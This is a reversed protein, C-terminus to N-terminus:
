PYEVRPQDPGTVKRWFKMLGGLIFFVVMLSLFLIAVQPLGISASNNNIYDIITPALASFFVVFILIGVIYEMGFGLADEINAM